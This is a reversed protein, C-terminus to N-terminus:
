LPLDGQVGGTPLALEHARVCRIGVRRSLKAVDDDNSFIRNVQRVRAIAVIQRDFKVKSWPSDIGEKKSGDDIAQRTMLANEVAAPLDFPVIEFVDTNQLIALYDATADGANVLIESLVPTPILIQERQEQLLDILAQVRDAAKALPLGTAPDRPIDAGPDLVLLLFDSDFLVM